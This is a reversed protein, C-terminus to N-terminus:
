ATWGHFERKRRLAERLFDVKRWGNADCWQAWGEPHDGDPAMVDDPITAPEQHDRRRM